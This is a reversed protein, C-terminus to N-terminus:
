HGTYPLVDTMPDRGYMFTIHQVPLYHRTTWSPMSHEQVINGTCDGVIGIPQLMVTYSENM